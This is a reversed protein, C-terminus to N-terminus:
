FLYYVEFNYVSFCGRLFQKPAYKQKSGIEMSKMFCRIKSQAEHKRENWGLVVRLILFLHIAHKECCNWFIIYM